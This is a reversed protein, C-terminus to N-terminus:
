MQNGKATGSGLTKNSGSGFKSFASIWIQNQENIVGLNMSGLFEFKKEGHITFKILVPNEQPHPPPPPPNSGALKPGSGCGQVYSM